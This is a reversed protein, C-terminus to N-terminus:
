IQLSFFFHKLSGLGVRGISHNRGPPASASAIGLRFSKVGKWPVLRLACTVGRCWGGRM